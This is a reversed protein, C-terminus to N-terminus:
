SFLDFSEAVVTDRSCLDLLIDAARGILQPLVEQEEPKFQKLVYVESPEVLRNNLSIGFKVRNFNPGIAAVMSNIGQHGSSGGGQRVRLRGFPTDVDDFAVWIDKPMLKYFQMIRQVAEGSLNMMTTPKSLLVKESEMMLVAVDSKLKSESHWTVETNRAIM